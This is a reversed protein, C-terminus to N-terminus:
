MTQDNNEKRRFYFTPPKAHQPFWATLKAYRGSIMMDGWGSTIRAEKERNAAARGAAYAHDKFM